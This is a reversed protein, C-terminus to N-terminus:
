ITVCNIQEGIGFATTVADKSICNIFKSSVDEGRFSIRDGVSICDFCHINTGIGEDISSGQASFGTGAEGIAWPHPGNKRTMVNYYTAHAGSAPTVGNGNYEFLGGHHTIECYEHSSEGDDSNDHGYCDIFTAQLQRSYKNEVTNYVHGNFGDRMCGYGECKEFTLSISEDYRFAGGANVMGCSVDAFKGSLRKTLVSKYLFDINSIFVNKPTSAEIFTTSPIVIPHNNLDSDARSFYLTNSIKFWMLKTTEAEIQALSTAPYIRTSPLRTRRGRHFPHRESIEIVTAEDEVDHQWLYSTDSITGTHAAQYVRSYGGSLTASSIRTGYILRIRDGLKGKISQFDSLDLPLDTYDGGLLILEGQGNLLENARTFSAIPFSESLGNNEDDGDPSMYVRDVFDKILAREKNFIDGFPQFPLPTVGENLMVSNVFSSNAPDLGSGVLAIINIAFFAANSPPTFTVPTLDGLVTNLITSILINNQDYFLIRAVGASISGFGSLTQENISSIPQKALSLWNNSPAYAGTSTAWSGSQIHASNNSLQLTPHIFPIVRDNVEDLEEKTSVSDFDYDISEKSVKKVIPIYEEFPLAVSGSNIMVSNRYGEVLSDFINTGFAVNIALTYGDGEPISIVVPNTNSSGLGNATSVVAGLNDKVVYRAITNALGGFGSITIDVGGPIPQFPLSIWNDSLGGFTGAATLQKNQMLENDSIQNGYVDKLAVTSILPDVLDITAYAALEIPVVTKSWGDGPVFSLYNVGDSATVVLGGFNTYTGSTSAIYYVPDTPTGPNDAPAATGQYDGRTENAFQAIEQFLSKLKEATIGKPLGPVIDATIKAILETYNM